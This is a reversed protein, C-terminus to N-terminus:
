LQKTNKFNIHSKEIGLVDMNASLFSAQVDGKHSSVNCALWTPIWFRNVALM